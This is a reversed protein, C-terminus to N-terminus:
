EKKCLMGNKDKDLEIYRRYIKFFNILSYWNYEMEKKTTVRELDLFETLKNSTVIDNIFIKGTKKPDLFFSNEKRM